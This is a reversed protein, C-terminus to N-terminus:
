GVRSAGASARRAAIESPIDIGAAVVRSESAGIPPLRGATGTIQILRHVSRSADVITLQRGSRRARHEADILMSLGSGDIFDVKGLDIEVRRGFRAAQTLAENFAREATLDLQGQVSLRLAGPRTTTDVHVM